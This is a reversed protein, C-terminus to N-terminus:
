EEVERWVRYFVEGDDLANSSTITFEEDDKELTLWGQESGGQHHLEIIDTELVEANEVTVAGATLTAVGSAILTKDGMATNIAANVEDEELKEALEAELGSISSISLGLMVLLEAVTMAVIEGSAKRGIIRSAAVTIAAFEGSNNKILITNASGFTSTEMKGENLNVFNQDVEAATLKEGKESQLIITSM